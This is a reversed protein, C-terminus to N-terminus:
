GLGAKGTVTDYTFPLTDHSKRHLQLAVAASSFTNAEICERASQLIKKRINRKNQVLCGAVCFHGGGGFEEAIQAVNIGERSRFSVRLYKKNKQRFLIALEVGEIAQMKDIIPDVDSEQAGANKLDKQKVMSWMLKGDCLYKARVMCVSALQTAERRKVWLVHEALQYFDAGAKMLQSCIDFTQPRIHPIRFSNTEVIISTLINQAIYRDLSINLQRLFRFIIEGVAAARTDVWSYDAFSNRSPHHDIEITTHAKKFVERMSGLMEYSGCDVAIAVDIHSPIKSSIRASGPLLLYKQPVPDSSLMYVTKGLKELGFGLSLLSGISDGDPNIHGSIAISQAELVTQRIAEISKTTQLRDVLLGM